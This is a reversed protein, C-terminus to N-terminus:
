HFRRSGCSVVRLYSFLSFSRLFIFQYILLLSRYSSVM